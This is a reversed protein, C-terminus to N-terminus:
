LEHSLSHGGNVAMLFKSSGKRVSFYCRHRNGRRRHRRRRSVRCFLVM